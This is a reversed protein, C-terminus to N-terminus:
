NAKQVDIDPVDIEEKKMDVNVSPVDIEARKTDIKVKATDVDFTPMQGKEIAVDPMKTERTQNIDVLGFAFAAIVALVIVVAGILISRM